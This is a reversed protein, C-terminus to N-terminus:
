GMPHYKSIDEQLDDLDNIYYSETSSVYRHGAMYQVQRLNYTKLWYTIVSTRLQKISTVQKNQKNLEKILKTILNQFTNGGQSTIILKSSENTKAYEPRVQFQYEMLDMIQASELKLTRENSKKTGKIYVKGERLKLDQEELKSLEGTGLGQWIILGLIVKNRREHPTIGQHNGYLKELEQKNLLSYLKKRKVGKIQIQRTPNDLNQNTACLYNFYHKLSNVYSSITKQKVQKRKSQIYNLIDHYSIQEQPISEEAAWKTFVETDKTYRHITSTSYGKHLLYQTFDTKQSLETQQQETQSINVAKTKM